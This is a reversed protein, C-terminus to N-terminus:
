GGGEGFYGGQYGGGGSKNGGFLGGLASGIAAGGPGGLLAGGVQLGAQGVGKMIDGFQDWGSVDSGHAQGEGSLGGLLMQEENLGITGMEGAIASSVQGGLDSQLLAATSSDASVGRAANSADLNAFMTNAAQMTPQLMLQEASSTSTGLNGLTNALVSGTGRGYTQQFDGLMTFDGGSQTPANTNLGSPATGGTGTGAIGTPTNVNLGPVAGPAMGRAVGRAGSVAQNPLTAVVPSTSALNQFVSSGLPNTNQSGGPVTQGGGPANSIVPATAM